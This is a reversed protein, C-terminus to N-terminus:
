YNGDLLIKEIKNILKKKKGIKKIFSEINYKHTLSFRNAYYWNIITAFFKRKVSIDRAPLNKKNEKKELFVLSHRNFLISFIESFNLNIIDQNIYYDWGYVNVKKFISGILAISLLGSGFDLNLKEFNYKHVVANTSIEEIIDKYKNDFNKISNKSQNWIPKGTSNSILGTNIQIYNGLNKDLFYNPSRCTLGFFNPKSDLKEHFNVFFTPIDYNIKDSNEKVSNGRLIINAEFFKNKRSRYFLWDDEPNINEKWRHSKPVTFKKKSLLYIYSPAIIFLISALFKYFNEILELFIIKIKAMKLFGHSM